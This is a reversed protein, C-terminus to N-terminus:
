ECSGAAKNSYKCIWYDESTEEMMQSWKVTVKKGHAGGLYDVPVHVNNGKEVPVNFILYLYQAEFYTLISLVTKHLGPLRYSGSASM